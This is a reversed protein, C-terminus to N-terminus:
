FDVAEVKYFPEFGVCEDLKFTTNFWKINDPEM